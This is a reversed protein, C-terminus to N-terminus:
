ACLQRAVERLIQACAVADSIRAFEERAHAGEGGPGFLVTPIGAAAIFASDAWFAAGTISPRVGLVEAAASRVARVLPADEAMEFPERVLLTRVDASLASDREACGAVLAEIEETVAEGTEGPLTRRELGVTCLDPYTALDRGGSILSAHVSGRGVLPHRTGGLRQDLAGIASLVPGARVIADVGLDPRSGHAACGHVDVELWAFGRHAIAVEMQTPETVIAADASVARLAEQVGLSAYEEDAVAAVVVDGALDLAAADRCALLAAAVGAKMDYAGRGHLRDGEVRPEHPAAMAGVGVTDLHGCLLLTSGGGRGRARVLVSPRGPTEELLESELGTRGAWDVVFAAVEAEGAAGPELSPNVSDIAVLASLLEVLEARGVRM